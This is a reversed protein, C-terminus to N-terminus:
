VYSFKTVISHRWTHFLSLRFVIDNEDLLSLYERRLWTKLKSRPFRFEACLYGVHLYYFSRIRNQSKEFVAAAMKPFPM